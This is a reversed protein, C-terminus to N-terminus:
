GERLRRQAGRCWGPSGGIAGSSVAFHSVYGEGYVALLEGGGGAGQEDFGALCLADLDGGEAVVGAERELGGAAHADHADLLHGLELGGAGGRDGFAHDDEGLGGVDRLGALGGELEQEAIVGEVAGDAVGAALALELVHGELVTGGVAEVGLGLVM